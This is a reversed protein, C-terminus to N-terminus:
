KIPYERLEHYFSGTENKNREVLDKDANRWTYYFKMDWEGEYAMGSLVVYIKTPRTTM